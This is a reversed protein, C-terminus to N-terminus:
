PNKKDNQESLSNSEKPSTDHEKEMIIKYLVEGDRVMRFKERAIKELFVPDGAELLAKQENLIKHEAELSM